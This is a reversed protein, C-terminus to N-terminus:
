QVPTMVVEVVKEITMPGRMCGIFTDVKRTTGGLLKARLDKAEPAGLRQLGMLAYLQGAVTGRKSLEVLKEHADPGAMLADFAIGEASPQGAYGVKHSVYAEARALTELPSQAAAQVPPGAAPGTPAVPAAPPESPALSLLVVLLISNGIM